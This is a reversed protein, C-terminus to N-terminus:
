VVGGKPDGTTEAEKSMIEEVADLIVKLLTLEGKKQQEKLEEIEKHVSEITHGKTIEIPPKEIRQYVNKQRDYKDGIHNEGDEIQVYYYFEDEQPISQLTTQSVCINSSKEIIGVEINM